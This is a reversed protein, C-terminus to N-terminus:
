EKQWQGVTLTLPKEKSYLLKSKLEFGRDLAQCEFPGDGFPDPIDKLNDVSHALYELPVRSAPIGQGVPNTM